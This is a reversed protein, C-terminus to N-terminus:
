RLRVTNPGVAIGDLRRNKDIRVGVPAGMGANNTATGTLTLRVPGDQWLVKVTSGMMIITAPAIGPTRLFEGANVPRRTVWGAIAHTTDPQTNWPWAIVTDVLVFDAATITQGRTMARVARPWTVRVTGRALTRPRAVSDAGLGRSAFAVDSASNQARANTANLILLLATALIGILMSTVTTAASPEAVPAGILKM